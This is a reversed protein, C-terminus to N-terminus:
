CRDRLSDRPEPPICCCPLRRDRAPVPKTEKEAALQSLVDECDPTGCEGFALLCRLASATGAAEHLRAALEPVTVAATAGCGTLVHSAEVATWHPMVPVAVAGITWIAQLMAPMEPGNPLMLLVRDGPKIDRAKLARALVAAYQLEEANTFSRDLYYQRTYVGFRGLYEHDLLALNASDVCNAASVAPMRHEGEAPSM